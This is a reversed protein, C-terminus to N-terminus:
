FADNGRCFAQVWGGLVHRRHDFFSMQGSARNLLAIRQGQDVISLFPGDLLYPLEHYHDTMSAYLSVFGPRINLTIFIGPEPIFHTTDGICFYSDPSAAAAPPTLAASLALLAGALRAGFAKRM